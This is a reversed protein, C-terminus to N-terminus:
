GTVTVPNLKDWLEPLTKKFGHWGDYSGTLNVTVKIAPSYSDNDILFWDPYRAIAEEETM